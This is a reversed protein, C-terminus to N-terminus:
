RTFGNMKGSKGIKKKLLMLNIFFPYWRKDKAFLRLRGNISGRKECQPSLKIQLLTSLGM